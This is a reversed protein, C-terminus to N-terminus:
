PYLNGKGGGSKLKGLHFTMWGAGLGEPALCRIDAGHEQLLLVDNVEQLREWTKTWLEKNCQRREFTEWTCSTIFAKKQLNLDVWESAFTSAM